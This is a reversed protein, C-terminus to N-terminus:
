QANGGGLRINTFQISKLCRFWLWFNMRQPLSSIDDITIQLVHKYWTHFLHDCGTPIVSVCALIHLIVSYHSTDCDIKSELLMDFYVVGINTVIDM